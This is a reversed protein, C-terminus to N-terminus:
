MVVLREDGEVFFTGGREKSHTEESSDATQCKKELEPKRLYKRWVSWEKRLNNTEGKAVWTEYKRTKASGIVVNWYVM